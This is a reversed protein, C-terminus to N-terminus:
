RIKIYMYGTKKIHIDFYSVKSHASMLGRYVTESVGMYQHVAGNNFEIEIINTRVDFGISRLNSSSVYQREM